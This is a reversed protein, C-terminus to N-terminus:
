GIWESGHRTAVGVRIRVVHKNRQLNRQVFRGSTPVLISLQFPEQSGEPNGDVTRAAVQEKFNLCGQDDWATPYSTAM